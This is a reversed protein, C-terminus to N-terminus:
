RGWVKSRDAREIKTVDYGSLSRYMEDVKGYSRMWQGGFWDIRSNNGIAYPGSAVGEFRYEDEQAVVYRRGQITVLIAPKADARELIRVMVRLEDDTAHQMLTEFRTM